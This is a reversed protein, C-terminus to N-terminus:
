CLVVALTTVMSLPYHPVSLAEHKM